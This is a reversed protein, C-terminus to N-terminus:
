SWRILFLGHADTDGLFDLIVFIADPQGRRRHGLQDRGPMFHHDLGIGAHADVKGVAGIFLGAGRDEGVGSRHERAGVHDDLDLLGLGGLDRHEFRAVDQEGVKVEGGVLGLGLPQHRRARRADGIFGDGAARARQRQQLRHAFDRPAHRDLDAGMIQFLLLAAAAHQEAADRPDGRGLDRDEAAPHGADVGRLDGGALAGIHGDIVDVIVPQGLEVQVESRRDLGGERRLGRDGLRDLLGFQHDARHQDGARRRGLQHGLRHELRHLATRDEDVNGDVLAAAELRAVGRGVGIRDVRDVAHDMIADGVHGARHRAGRGEREVVRGQRERELEGIEAGVGGHGGVGM